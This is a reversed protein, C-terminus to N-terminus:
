AELRAARQARLALHKKEIVAKREARVEASLPDSDTFGRAYAKELDSESVNHMAGYKDYLQVKSLGFSGPPFYRRWKQLPFLM